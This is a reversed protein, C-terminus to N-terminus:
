LAPLTARWPAQTRKLGAAVSAGPADLETVTRTPDPRTSTLSWAATVSAALRNEGVARASPVIPERPDPTTVTADSREVSGQSRCSCLVAGTRTHV